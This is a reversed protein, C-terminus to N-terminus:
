ESLGAMIEEPTIMPQSKPRPSFKSANPCWAKPNDMLPMFLDFGDVFDLVSKKELNVDENFVNVWADPVWENKVDVSYGYYNALRIYLVAWGSFLQRVDDSWPSTGSLSRKKLYKPKLLLSISDSMARADGFALARLFMYDLEYKNSYKVESSFYEDVCSSFLTADRAMALRIQLALHKASGPLGLAHCDEGANFLPLLYQAHWYLIDDDFSLVATLLSDFEGSETYTQRIQFRMREIIACTYNFESFSLLKHEKYWSLYARGKLIDLVSFLVSNLGSLDAKAIAKRVNSVAEHYSDSVAEDFITISNVAREINPSPAM